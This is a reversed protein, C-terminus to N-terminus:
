SFHGNKSSWKLRQFFRNVTFNAAVKVDQEPTEKVEPELNENKKETM